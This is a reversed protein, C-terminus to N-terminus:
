DASPIQRLFKKFVWGEKIVGQLADYYRVRAWGNQTEILEVTEGVSLRDLAKSSGHPFVRVVSHRITVSFDATQSHMADLLAQLHAQNKAQMREFGAAIEGRMQLNAAHLSAQATENDAKTEIYIYATLLLMLLNLISNFAQAELISKAGSVKESFAAFLRELAARIAENSTAKGLEEEIVAVGSLLLSQGVEEDSGDDDAYELAQFAQAILRTTIGTGVFADLENRWALAMDSLAMTLRHNDEQLARLSVAMSPIERRWWAAQGAIGTYAALSDRVQAALSMPQALNAMRGSAIEVAKAMTLTPENFRAAMEHFRTAEEAAQRLLNGPFLAQEVLQRSMQNTREVERMLNAWSTGGFPDFPNAMLKYSESVFLFSLCGDELVSAVM